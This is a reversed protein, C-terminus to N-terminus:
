NYRNKKTKKHNSLKIINKKTKIKKKQRDNLVYQFLKEYIDDDLVKHNFLQEQQESQEQKKNPHNIYFLGAPIALNNLLETFKNNEGGLQNNPNSANISSNLLYSNVLYGSSTIEGNPTTNFVFDDTSTINNNNNNNTYETM